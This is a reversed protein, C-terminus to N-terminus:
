FTASIIIVSKESLFKQTFNKDSYKKKMTMKKGSFQPQYEPLGGSPLFHSVLHDVKESEHTTTKM